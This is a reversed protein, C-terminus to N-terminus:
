LFVSFAPLNFIVVMESIIVKKNEQFSLVAHLVGELQLDCFIVSSLATGLLQFGSM